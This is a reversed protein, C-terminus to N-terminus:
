ILPFSAHSHPSIACTAGSKHEVVILICNKRQKNTLVDDNTAMNLANRIIWIISINHKDIQNSIPFQTKNTETGSWDLEISLNLDIRPFFPRGAPWENAMNM